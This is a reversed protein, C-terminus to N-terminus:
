AEDLVLAARELLAMLERVSAADMPEAHVPESHVVVSPAATPNGDPGLPQVVQVGVRAVMGLHVAHESEVGRMHLDRGCWPPCTELVHAFQAKETDSMYPSVTGTMMPEM